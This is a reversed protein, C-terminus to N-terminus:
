CGQENVVTGTNNTLTPTSDCDVFIDRANNSFVSNIVTVTSETADLQVGTPTLGVQAAGGTGDVSIDDIVSTVTLPGFAIGLWNTGTMALDNMVLGGAATQGVRFGARNEMVFDNADITLVPSTDGRVQVDAIVTWPRSQSVWTATRGVVGGRCQLQADVDLTVAELTGMSDAHMAIAALAEGTITNNAFSALDVFADPVYLGFMASGEIRTDNVSTTHPFQSGFISIGGANV